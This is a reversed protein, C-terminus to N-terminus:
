DGYVAVFAMCVPHTMDLKRPADPDHLRGVPRVVHTIYNVRNVFSSIAEPGGYRNVKKVFRDIYNGYEKETLRWGFSEIPYVAGEVSRLTKLSKAM